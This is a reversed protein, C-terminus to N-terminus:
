SAPDPRRAVAQLAETYETRLRILEERLGLNFYGDQFEILMAMVVNGGALAGDAQVPQPGPEFRFGETTERFRPGLRYTTAHSQMTPWFYMMPYSAGIGLKRAMSAMDLKSWSPQVRTTGCKECVVETFQPKV